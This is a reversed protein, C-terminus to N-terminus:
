SPEKEEDVTQTMLKTLLNFFQESSLPDCELSKDLYELMSELICTHM